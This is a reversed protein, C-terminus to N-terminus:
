AAPGEPNRWVTEGGREEPEWDAAELERREDETVSM